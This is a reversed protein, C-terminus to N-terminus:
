RCRRRHPGSLTALLEQGPGCAATALSWLFIGTAIITRRSYRDSLRAIPVGMAVYFIVFAFGMLLSIQTDSIALDARIPQVLLTIVQRDIFSVVQALMLIVVVYWPYILRRRPAKSDTTSPTGPGPAPDILAIERNARAKRYSAPRENACDRRRKAVGPDSRM